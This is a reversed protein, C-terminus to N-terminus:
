SVLLQRFAGVSLYQPSESTVLGFVAPMFSSQSLELKFPLVHVENAPKVPPVNDHLPSQEKSVDCHEAVISGFHPSLEFFWNLSSQSPESKPPLDQWVRPKLCPFKAHVDNHLNSAALQESGSDFYQPFECTSLGFVGPNLSSHSLVDKSPFVHWDNPYADPANDHLPSQVNLM